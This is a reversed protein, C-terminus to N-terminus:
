AAAFGLDYELLPEFVRCFPRRLGRVEVGQEEGEGVGGALDDFDDGALHAEPRGLNFIALQQDVADRDGDLSDIAVLVVLHGSPHHALFRHDAVDPQHLPEVDVRHAGAVGFWERQYSSQSSYPRYTTSSAFM